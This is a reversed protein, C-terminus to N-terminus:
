FMNVHEFHLPLPVISHGSQLPIPLILLMWFLFMTIFLQEHQSPLRSILQELQSPKPRIGLKSM